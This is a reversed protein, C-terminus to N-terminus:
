GALRKSIRKIIEAVGSIPNKLTEITVEVIDPNIRMLNRFRRFLFSEDPSSQELATKIEKLEEIIDAKENNDLVKQENVLTYIPEFLPSLNLLHETSKDSGIVINSSVNGGINISVNGAVVNGDGQAIQGSGYISDQTPSKKKPRLPKIGDKKELELKRELFMIDADPIRLVERFVRHVHFLNAYPLVVKNGLFEYLVEDKNVVGLFSISYLTQFLVDLPEFFASGYQKIIDEKIPTFLEVIRERSIEHSTNAYFMGRLINELFPYQVSYESILDESKWNSYKKIAGVIDAEDIKDSKGRDLANDRCMNCLQILDRPRMLTYQILFDFSDGDDILDPFVSSWLTEVDGRKGTSKHIRLSILKKLNETSWVIMETHSRYHDSNHFRLYSFIDSRLFVIIKIQQLTDNIGKAARLLGVILDQGEKSSDWLDDVQDVLFYIPAQKLLNSAQQFDSMFTDIDDSLASGDSAEKGVELAGEVKLVSVAVKNISRVFKLAKDLQNASNDDHKVLFARVKRLAMDWQTYNDGYKKTAIHVLYRAAEILFVFKWKQTAAEEINLSAKEILISKAISMSGPTILSVDYQNKIQDFFMLCTATKGAGKRGLVLWKKTDKLREYFPTPLYLYRLTEKESEASDQGFSLKKLTSM